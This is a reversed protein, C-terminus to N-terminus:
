HKTDAGKSGASATGGGENRRRLAECPDKRPAAETELYADFSALYERDYGGPERELLAISTASTRADPELWHPVGLDKRVHGNGTLLVVGRAAFPAIAQALARDREIQARAMGPLAEAPLTGCHGDAIIQEHARLFAPAVEVQASTRGMAVAMADSRSLNAAVIPLGYELALALYPRYLAWNWSSDGRGQAILFDIDRPRERRARDIAAQHERDFQEFALAPRAGGEVLKRLAAARIAHQAPNDHVEGLVVVRHGAIARALADPTAELSVAAHVGDIMIAFLTLALWAARM